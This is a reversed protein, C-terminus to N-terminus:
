FHNNHKAELSKLFPLFFFFLLSVFFSIVFDTLCVFVWMFVFIFVCCINEKNSSLKDM